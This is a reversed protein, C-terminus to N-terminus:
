SPKPVACPIRQTNASPFAKQQLCNALAIYVGGSEPSTGLWDSPKDDGLTQTEPPEFPPILYSQFGYRTILPNPLHFYEFVDHEQLKSADLRCLEPQRETSM